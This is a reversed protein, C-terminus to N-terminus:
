TFGDVAELEIILSKKHLVGLGEQQGHDISLRFVLPRRCIKKSSRDASVM